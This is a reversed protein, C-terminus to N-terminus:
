TRSSKGETQHLHMQLDEFRQL